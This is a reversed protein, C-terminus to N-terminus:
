PIYVDDTSESSQDASSADGVPLPLSNVTPPTNVYDAHRQMSRTVFAKESPSLQASSSTVTRQPGLWLSAMALVAVVVAMRASVAWKSSSSVLVGSLMSAVQYFANRPPQEPLKKRLRPWFDQSVVVPEESTLAQLAEMALRVNDVDSAKNQSRELAAKMDACDKKGLRDDLYDLINSENLKMMM